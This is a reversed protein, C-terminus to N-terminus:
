NEIKYEYVKKTGMLQKYVNKMVLADRELYPTECIITAEWGCEMLVELLPELPPGYEREMLVHHKREGADTYEIRTFHCHLTESGRGNEGLGEELKGLIRHYDYAGKICGRGRAHLHAFDITPAFHDFSQCIDIIEDLNGLQSRKGTTEPAFTYNKIGLSDLEDMLKDIASKCRELAERPTYKTYFGPHFVIRYAGIWEAARASQVLRQVSRELVDEKQASLNIYYPAHMSVRIDNKLANQGLKIASQKQIRVGYTAQYEYAELGIEEIYDCVNVTQGNFCIPNGAPGFRIKSKM